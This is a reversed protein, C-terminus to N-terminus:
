ARLIGRSTSTMRWLFDDENVRKFPQRIERPPKDKSNFAISEEEVKPGRAAEERTRRELDGFLPENFFPNYDQERNKDNEPESPEEEEDSVIVNRRPRKSNPHSMTNSDEDDAKYGTTTPRKWNSPGRSTM